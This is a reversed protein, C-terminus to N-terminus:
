LASEEEGAAKGQSPGAITTVLGPAPSKGLVLQVRPFAKAGTKIPLKSGGSRAAGRSYGTAKTFGGKSGAKQGRPSVGYKSAKGVQEVGKPETQTRIPIDLVFEQGPMVGPEEPTGVRSREGPNVADVDMSSEMLTEAVTTQKLTQTLHAMEPGTSDEGASYDDETSEM